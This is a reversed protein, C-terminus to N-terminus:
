LLKPLSAPLLEILAISAFGHLYFDLVRSFVGLQSLMTGSPGPSALCPHGVVCSLSVVGRGMDSYVVFYPHSPIEAYIHCM